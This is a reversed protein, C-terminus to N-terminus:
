VKMFSLLLVFQEQEPLQLLPQLVKLSSLNIKVKKNVTTKLIVIRGSVIYKPVCFCSMNDHLKTISGNRKEQLFTITGSGSILHAMKEM